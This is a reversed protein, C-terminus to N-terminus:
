QCAYHLDLQIWNGYTIYYYPVSNSAFQCSITNDTFTIIPDMNMSYPALHNIVDVRCIIPQVNGIKPPKINTFTFLSAGDFRASSNPTNFVFKIFNSGFDINCSGTTNQIASIYNQIEPTTGLDVTKTTIPGTNNLRTKVITGDLTANVCATNTGPCTLITVKTDASRVRCGPSLFGSTETTYVYVTHLGVTSIDIYSTGASVTGTGLTATGDHWEYTTTSTGTTTLRVSTTPLNFVTIPSAGLTVGTPNAIATIVPTLAQPNEVRFKQPFAFESKKTTNTCPVKIYCTVIYFYGTPLAPLSPALVNTSNVLVNNVGNITSLNFKYWIDDSMTPFTCDTASYNDIVEAMCTPPVYNGSTSKQIIWNYIYGAGSINAGNCNTKKLIFRKECCQNYNTAPYLPPSCVIASLATATAPPTWSNVQFASCAVYGPQFCCPNNIYCIVYYFENIITNVPLTEPMPASRIKISTPDNNNPDNVNNPIRYWKDVLITPSCTGLPGSPYMDLGTLPPYSGPVPAQTSRYILFQYTTGCTNYPFLISNVSATSPCIGNYNLDVINFTKACGQNINGPPNDCIKAPIPLLNVTFSFVYGSTATTTVSSILTTGDYCNLKFYMTYNVGTSLTPTPINLTTVGTAVLAFSGMSPTIKYYLRGVCTGTTTFGPLNIKYGVVPVTAPPIISNTCLLPSSNTPTTTFSCSCSQPTPTGTNILQKENSITFVLAESKVDGTIIMWVYEKGNVFKPASEPYTFSNTSINEEEFFARNKEMAAEPSQNGSIEVIKLHYSPLKGGTITSQWIFNIGLSDGITEGDVPSILLIESGPPRIIVPFICTEAGVIIEGETSYATICTKYNGEPVSNTRLIFEKLTNDTWNVSGTEFSRYNYNSKGPPLSINASRGDVIRDDDKDVTGMLYVNLPASTRNDLTMKWVDGVSLQNPPPQHLTIYVKPQSYLESTM